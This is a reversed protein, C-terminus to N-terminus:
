RGGATQGGDRAVADWRHCVRVIRNGRNIAYELDLWGGAYEM